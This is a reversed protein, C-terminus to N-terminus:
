FKFGVFLRFHSTRITYFDEIDLLEYEEKDLYKVNGFGFDFGASFVKYHFCVGLNHTVGLYGSNPRGSLATDANLDLVYTPGIQYFGDVAMKDSISYTFYPGVRVISGQLYASKTNGNKRGSYSAELWSARLGIANDDLKVIKFMNGLELDIGPQSTGFATSDFFIPIYCKASPLFLGVNLYFGGENMAKDSSTEAAIKLQKENSQKKIPDNGAFIVSISLIFAISLIITKM